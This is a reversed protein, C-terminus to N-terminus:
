KTVRKLTATTLVRFDNSNAVDLVQFTNGDILIQDGPQLDTDYAVSLLWDGVIAFQAAIEASRGRRASALRCAVGTYVTEWAPKPAGTTDVAVTGVRQITCTSPLALTQADNRASNLEAASITKPDM